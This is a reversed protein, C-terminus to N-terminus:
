SLHDSLESQFTGLAPNSGMRASGEHKPIRRKSREAMGGQRQQQRQQLHLHRQQQRKHLHLYRQQQYQQLHPHPQLEQLM